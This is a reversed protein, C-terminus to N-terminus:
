AGYFRSGIAASPRTDVSAEAFPPSAIPFFESLAFEFPREHRQGNFFSQQAVDGQDPEARDGRCNSDFLRLGELRRKLFRTTWKRVRKETMGVLRAVEV